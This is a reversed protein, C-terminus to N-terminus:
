GPVGGPGRERESVVRNSGTGLGMGLDEKENWHWTGEPEQEKEEEPMNIGMDASAWYMCTMEAQHPQLYAIAEQNSERLSDIVTCLEESMGIELLKQSAWEAEDPTPFIRDTPINGKLKEEM